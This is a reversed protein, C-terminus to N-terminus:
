QSVESSPTPSILQGFMERSYWRGSVMVGLPQRIMAITELPNESLLILDARKCIELTGFNGEGTMRGVVESANVTGTVLAEYPSFGNEILIAL